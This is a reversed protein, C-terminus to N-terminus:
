LLVENADIQKVKSESHLSDFLVLAFSTEYLLSPLLHAQSTNPKIKLADSLAITSMKQVQKM